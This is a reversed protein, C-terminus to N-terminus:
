ILSRKHVFLGSMFSRSPAHNIHQTPDIDPIPPLQDALKPGVHIFHENLKDCISSQDIFSKNNYLLKSILRKKKTGRNIIM